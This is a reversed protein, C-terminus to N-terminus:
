KHGEDARILGTLIDSQQITNKAGVAKILSNLLDVLIPTNNLGTSRCLARYHSLVTEDNSFILPIQNLDELADEIHMRKGIITSVLHKKEEFNKDIRSFHRQLCWLVVSLLFGVFAGLLAATLEGM